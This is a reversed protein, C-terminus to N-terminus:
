FFRHFYQFIVNKPVKVLWLEDANQLDKLSVNVKGKFVPENEDRNMRKRLRRKQGGDDDSYNNDACFLNM